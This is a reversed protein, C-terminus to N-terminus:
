GDAAGTVTLAETKLRGTLRSLEVPTLVKFIAARVSKTCKSQIYGTLVDMSHEFDEFCQWTDEYGGKWHVLFEALKVPNVKRRSSVVNHDLVAEVEFEEVGAINIPPLHNPRRAKFPKVMSVSVTSHVRLSEPMQLKVASRGVTELVTLPGMYRPLLKNRRSPHRLRIDRLDYWVLSGAEYLHLNTVNRDHVAKMKDKALQVCKRAWLYEDAAQVANRTGGAEPSALSSMGMWRARTCKVPENGSSRVLAQFPDLPLTVRNMQFPTCQLTNHYANNLAFEVLPLYDAWDDQNASTYHRLAAEVTGNTREVLGNTQPHYSTSLALKIGVTVCLATFFESNWQTGRDSVIKAPLGYHPFVERFFLKAFGAADIKTDCPVLRVMKSLHCVFVCIANYKDPETVPLDVILDVGLTHWCTGPPVLPTLPPARKRRSPKNGQCANCSDIYKRVDEDLKPWWFQQQVLKVTKEIGLHACWPVDHHWYLVDERLDQDAPVYLLPGRWLLGHEEKLGLKLKLESTKTAADVLLGSQIRTFLREFLRDYEHSSQDFGVTGNQTGTSPDTEHQVVFGPMESMSPPHPTDDCLFGESAPIGTPARFGPSGSVVHSNFRDTGTIGGVNVAANGCTGVPVSPVPSVNPTLEDPTSERPAEPNHTRATNSFSRANEPIPPKKGSGNGGRWSNDRARTHGFASVADVPFLLCSRTVAGEPRRCGTSPDARAGPLGLEGDGSNGAGPTYSPSEYGATTPATGVPVPEHGTIRRCPIGTFAAVCHPWNEGPLEPMPDDPLTLMRTLADAVVNEDGKVYLIDYRFRALFEIWHSHRRNVQVQTRLWTLPEHDTHMYVKPAGELYCRWKLLCYIIALLEQETTSYNVEAKLLKRACYAIPRLEGEHYQMLVGGIGRISADSYVHYEEDVKPHMMLTANLLGTKLAGWAVTTDASWNPAVDKTQDHLPAALSSFRPIFRRFYNMFGIYRRCEKVVRKKVSSRVGANLKPDSLLLADDTPPNWRELASVKGPDPLVGQGNVIHGLYKLESKGWFCKPLQCYLNHAHLASLVADLHVVHEAVSKSKIVIDDMYVLCYGATVHERLITNMAHQFVAPANSLGMPMVKWQMLGYPTPFATFPRSEESMKLQYYGSALDLASFLADGQMADLLEDQITLPSRNPVTVMNLKRYDVCFRLKGNPKPIFLVSSSWPSSSPEIWGKSIFADVQRILEAKELPTLRYQRVYVPNAQDVLQIKCEYIKAHTHDPITGCLTGGDVSHKSIVRQLDPHLSPETHKATAVIEDPEPEPTVTIQIEYAVAANDMVSKVALRKQSLSAPDPDLDDDPDDLDMSMMETELAIPLAAHDRTVGVQRSSDLSRNLTLKQKGTGLTFQVADPTFQVGVSNHQWFDQGLICHYGAVPESLVQFEQPVSLKRLKVPAIVKGKVSVAGGIGGIHGEAPAPSRLGVSNSFQSSICSCTAGSDLLARVTKGAVRVDFSTFHAATSHVHQASAVFNLACCDNPILTTDACLKRPACGESLWPTFGKNVRLAQPMVLSLVFKSHDVAQMHRVASHAQYPDELHVTLVTDATLVTVALWKDLEM